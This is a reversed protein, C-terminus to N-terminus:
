RRPRKAAYRGARFTNRAAHCGVFAVLIFKRMTSREGRVKASLSSPCALTRAWTCSPLQFSRHALRSALYLKRRCFAIRPLAPDRGTVVTVLLPSARGIARGAPTTFFLQLITSGRFPSQTWRAVCNFDSFRKVDIGCVRYWAFDPTSLRRRALVLSVRLPFRWTGRRSKLFGSENKRSEGGRWAYSSMQFTIRTTVTVPLIPM